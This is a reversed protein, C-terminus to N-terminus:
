KCVVPADFACKGMECSLEGQCDTMDTCAAGEALDKVCKMTAMDCYAYDVCENGVCAEGPKPLTTCVKTMPDCYDAFRDCLSFGMPDCAGGTPAPTKCTGMMTMVDLDCFSPLKCENAKTCPKGVDTAAACTTPMGMADTQCYGSSDCQYMPCPEGIKPLTPAQERPACKSACCSEMCNPDTAECNGSVCQEDQVCSAGDAITGELVDLCATEIQALGGAAYVETISCAGLVAFAELCADAKEPHYIITGDDIYPKIDTTDFQATALCEEKTESRYCEVASACNIEKLKDELESFSLATGGGTTNNPGTECGVLPLPIVLLTFVITSFFRM